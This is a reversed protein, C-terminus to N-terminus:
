DLFFVTNTDEAGFGQQSAGGPLYIREGLTAAALGHRPLLMDPLSEWRDTVPDYAEVEVFVGSPDMANGEGGFIYLKGGLVSGAVGGRATLLPARPEYSQAVPDFAWTGPQFGGIGQARGGAIIIEEGIAGAACHERPEPLAPLAQWTDTMPDYVSSDSVSGNRAGGFLYVKGGFTAVCSSARETGAPLASRPAWTDLAPDYEYVAGSAETFSAGVYFGAVILRGDVSAANAHHFVSPFDAVARWSDASPDYAAVSASAEPTFGGVVFVESGLVVVAHEQRVTALPALEQQVVEPSPAPEAVAQGGAGALPLDPNVVESPGEPTNGSPGGGTGASAQASAEGAAGAQPQLPAVAADDGSSGCALAVLLPGPWARKSIMVFKQV